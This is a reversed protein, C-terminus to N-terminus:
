DGAPLTLVFRAGGGPANTVALDGGLLRANERAIALGLGSGRSSARSPDAKYFRDFIHPLHELSIGPGSDTVTIQILDAPHSTAPVGAGPGAARRVEITAPAAGHQLSNEVLNVIIRELRRKDTRAIAAAAAPAGPAGATQTTGTAHTTGAARAPDAVRVADSWGHAQVLRILFAQLDVSEMLTEAARADLRSIELLDDVLQRLRAIDTNVLLALRTVEPSCVGPNAELRAKLLSAEGVLASVPTRLEHTVDAVFRRERAQGAELDLMKARLNETMQNFSAALVGFEDAGVPLRIDLDGQSVLVAAKSAARVPGLLRRALWYGAIAGLVALIVGGIILINRLRALDALRDGQPYFFYLAIESSRVPGGVAITPQGAMTIMQYGVHGEAVKAALEPTVLGRPVQSGTVYVDSGAEILSAFDGRIQLAEILRNYDAPKPAAPLMADALVLNFRSQALAKDLADADQAAKTIFYASLALALTAVVVAVAFALAVRRRLSHRARPIHRGRGTM